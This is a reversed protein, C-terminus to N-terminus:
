AELAPHGHLLGGAAVEGGLLAAPQFGDAVVDGAADAHVDAVQLVGGEVLLAAQRAGVLQEAVLELRDDFLQIQLQRRSVSRCGM